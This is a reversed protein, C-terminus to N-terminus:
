NSLTLRGFQAVSRKKMGPSANDIVIKLSAALRVLDNTYALPWAEDFDDV